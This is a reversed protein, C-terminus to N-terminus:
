SLGKGRPLYLDNGTGQVLLGTGVEGTLTMQISALGEEGPLSEM